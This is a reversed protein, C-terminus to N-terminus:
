TSPVRNDPSKMKIVYFGREEFYFRENKLRDFSIEVNKEPTCNEDGSWCGYIEISDMGSCHKELYANLGDHNKQHQELEEKSYLTLQYEYQDWREGYRFNCGCFTDSGFYYIFPKSFHKTVKSENESLQAVNFAPNTDDWPVLPLEKDAGLYFAMCM